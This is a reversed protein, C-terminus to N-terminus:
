ATFRRRCETVFLGFNVEEFERQLQSLDNVSLYQTAVHQMYPPPRASHAVHSALGRTHISAFYLAAILHHSIATNAIATEANIASHQPQKQRTSPHSNSEDIFYGKAHATRQEHKMGSLSSNTNPIIRESPQHLRRNAIDFCDVEKIRAIGEGEGIGGRQSSESTGNQRLAPSRDSDEMKVPRNMPVHARISLDQM